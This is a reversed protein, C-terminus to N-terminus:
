NLVLKKCSTRASLPSVLDQLDAIACTVVLTFFTMCSVNKMQRPSLTCTGFGRSLHTVPVSNLSVTKLVISVNSLTHQWQGPNFPIVGYFSMAGDCVSDNIVGKEILLVLTM